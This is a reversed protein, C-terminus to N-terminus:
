SLKSKWWESFWFSVTINYNGTWTLYQGVQWREDSNQSVPQDLIVYHLFGLTKSYQFNGQYIDKKGLYLHLYGSHFLISFSSNVQRHQASNILVFLFKELFISIFLLVLVLMFSVQSNKDNVCLVCAEGSVHNYCDKFYKQPQVWFILFFISINLNLNPSQNNFIEHIPM